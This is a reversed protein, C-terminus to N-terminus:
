RWSKVGSASHLCRGTLRSRNRGMTLLVLFLAASRRSPPEPSTCQTLVLGLIFFRSRWHGELCAAATLWVSYFRKTDSFKRWTTQLWAPLAPRCYQRSCFNSLLILRHVRELQQEDAQGTPDVAVLLVDDFVELFLHFDEPLLQALLGPEVVVLAAPQRGFGLLQASVAQM